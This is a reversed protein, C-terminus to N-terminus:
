KKDEMGERTESPRLNKQYDLWNIGIRLKHQRMKPENGQPQNIQM